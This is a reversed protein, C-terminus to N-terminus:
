KMKFGKIRVDGQVHIHKYKDDGFRNPFHMVHGDPLKIRFSDNDFSITIKFEEGHQFPFNGEREESSWSGNHLSNCVITRHDGEHDFRPNFHLAINDDSHGINIVFTNADGNPVGTIKLDLGAKFSMNKLELKSM